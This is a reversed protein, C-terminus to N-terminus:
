AHFFGNNNDHEMEILGNQIRLFIKHLSGWKNVNAGYFNNKILYLMGNLFINKLMERKRQRTIISSNNFLVICYISGLSGFCHIVLYVNRKNDEAWEHMKWNTRRKNFASWCVCVYICGIAYTCFVDHTCKDYKFVWFFSPKIKM